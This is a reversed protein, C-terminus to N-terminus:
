ELIARNIYQNFPYMLKFSSIIKPLFERTFLMNEDFEELLTYSKYKLLDVDEFDNPFDKPPKKLKEGYIKPFHNKFKPKNIINKFEETNDYIENRVAKLVPSAPMYIGGGAFCGGPEIHLYYGALGSKRGNQVMHAGFNIKYPTKDNSFRTDRYIRYISEKASITKIAPDFKSIEAIMINVFLEFNEKADNYWTKNEQFWERNNNKSLTKLFDIITTNLVM